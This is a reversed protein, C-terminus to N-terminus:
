CGGAGGGLLWGVVGRGRSRSGVREVGRSSRYRRYTSFYGAVYMYLNIYVNIHMDHTDKRVVLYIERRGEQM